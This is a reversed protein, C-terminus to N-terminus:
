VAIWNKLCLDSTDNKLEEGFWDIPYLIDRGEIEGLYAGWWSFSSASMIGGACSAMLSLDQVETNDVSYVFELLNYIDSNIIKKSEEIEDSFVLFKKYGRVAFYSLASSIYEESIIKHFKTLNKYDGLRHHIFITEPQITFTPLGLIKLIEERYDNFYKYSQFYGNLWLKDCDYKPIEKFHFHPETYYVHSSFNYGGEMPVQTIVGYECYKLNKSFFVKQDPYHPQDIVTPICYDCGHKLSYALVTAIQFLNNALGGILKISVTM